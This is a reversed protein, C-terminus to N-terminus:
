EAKVLDHGLIYECNIVKEILDVPLYFYHNSAEYGIRSDQSSLTFLRRALTIEDQVLQRLREITAGREGAASQLGDRAIVFWTQNAVTQFHIQAAEAFRVEAQANRAQDPPAMAAARRHEALGQYFGAAVRAMQAAFVGPPYPGRWTNVDDYAIGVMTARYGTPKAYLLNAPGQHVPCHYIVSGDFPYDLYAKSFATWAKRAHPAGQSGFRERALTDLVAEATPPPTQSFRRAIELNPSPYGGLSWSLLFSNVGAGALNACHEAVQDMVPVYPVAAMEWTNNIQMKAATKLGQEQALKWHRTARPGPGVVSLSYEGVRHKVGGRTFEKSWESVSMFWVSKPLRALIDAAWADQWGWDWVIVKANPNGRHVGAEIVANVEATIEAPSRDKCRPCRASQFHSACHTLNESASITFVGGLGPVREFVHALADSLWARVEPVSTCLTFYEGEGVGKLGPRSNFFGTPMARPENMYLYIKIGYKDAREVLKRLNALRTQHGEGFEPFTKSPALQRLVTHIWVGNVGLNGLRQLLGEPFTDLKSDMLLDGFLAFYPYIFRLGAQPSGTSAAPMGAAPDLKSLEEIFSFRPEAPASLGEGFADRITQRIEAARRRAAESPPAYKLLECAPKPGLKVFLFDDERLRVAMEEASINLLTLLQASPLLHWNRRLVTIYVRSEPVPPLTPSEPLGMSVAIDRVKDASTDLVMALREPSVVTWNRWVFTHLRDPFHPVDLARPGSEAHSVGCMAGLWVGFGYAAIRALPIRAPM